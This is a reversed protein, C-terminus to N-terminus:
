AATSLYRIFTRKAIPLLTEKFPLNLSCEVVYTAPNDYKDNSKILERKASEYTNTISSQYTRVLKTRLGRYSEDHNEFITVKYEYIRTESKDRPKLFMFGEDKYLSVLGVPFIDLKDEYSEYLEKGDKLNQEVKPLAFNVISEIEEMYQDDKILKKYEIVFREFDVKSIKKPFSEAIANKSEKLAMLNKYHLILESLFPYLKKDNFNNSVNQLYGLLVYKKYEFDILGETIWNQSLKDM